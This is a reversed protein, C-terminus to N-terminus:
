LTNLHNEPNVMLCDFEIVRLTSNDLSVPYMGAIEFGAKEYVTISQTVHPMGEYIPLISMESQLALILKRLKETGAFVQLDYGQTDLKLYIRAQDLSQIIEPLINDLRRVIVLEEKQALADHNLNDECWTNTKLFSSFVTYDSIYISKETNEEGLALNYIDWNPDNKAKKALQAFVTSIPEFSIIKGGYGIRRLEEVFQGENAGVDLVTNIQYQKLITKLRQQRLYDYIRRHSLIEDEKKEILLLSAQDFFFVEREDRILALGQNGIGQFQYGFISQILTKLTKKLKKIPM